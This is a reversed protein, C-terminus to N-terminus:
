EQEDFDVEVRNESVLYKTFIMRTKPNHLIKRLELEAEYLELAESVISMRSYGTKEALRDLRRMDAGTLSFDCEHRNRNEDEFVERNWCRECTLPESKEWGYAGCWEPDAMIYGSLSGRPCCNDIHEQVREESWEPHLERLKEICTM